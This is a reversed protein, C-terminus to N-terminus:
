APDSFEPWPTAPRGALQATFEGLYWRRYRVLDPPTALTLLHKGQRCYEDAEDLMEGLRVSAPAAAVPVQYILDIAGLRRSVADDLQSNQATTLGAFEGTLAEILETLRVPLETMAVSDVIDHQRQQAMLYMERVLEASHEQARAHVPIPLQLLRVERLAGAVDATM